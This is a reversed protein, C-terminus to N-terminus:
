KLLYFYLMVNKMKTHTLDTCIDGKLEIWNPLVASLLVNPENELFLLQTGIWQTCSINERDTAEQEPFTMSTSLARIM